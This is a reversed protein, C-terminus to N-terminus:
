VGLPQNCWCLSGMLQAYAKRARNSDDDTPGGVIMNIVGRTPIDELAPSAGSSQEKERHTEM